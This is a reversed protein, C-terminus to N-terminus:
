GQKTRRLETKFARVSEAFAAHAKDSAAVRQALARAQEGAAKGRSNAVFPLVLAAFGCVIGLLILLPMRAYQGM